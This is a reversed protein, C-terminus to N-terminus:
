CSLAELDPEKSKARNSLWVRSDVAKQRRKCVQIIAATASQFPCPVCLSYSMVSWSFRATCHTSLCTRANSLTARKVCRALLMLNDTDSTIEGPSFLGRQDEALAAAQISRAPPSGRGGFLMTTVHGTQLGTMLGRTQRVVQVTPGLM